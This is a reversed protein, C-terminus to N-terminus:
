GVGRNELEKISYICKMRLVVLCSVFLIISSFMIPYLNKIQSYINWLIDTVLEIVLLGYSISEVSKTKHIKLIQPVYIMTACIMAAYGIYDEAPLHLFGVDDEEFGM